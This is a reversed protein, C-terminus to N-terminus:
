LTFIVNAEIWNNDLFKEDKVPGVEVRLLAVEGYASPNLGEVTVNVEEKPKLEPITVTVKQPQTSDPSLLTVTVPVDKEAMNGQNEVAVVFALQDSSQLNFTGGSTIKKADPMVTVTGVAVGHVAQLNGTSKLQALIEQARSKSAIDPDTLFQTAPVAIGTLNKAKLIDTAKPIFVERYLFDSNTLYYLARSIQESSVETDQVELANMLSPKLDALGTHRFTMVLVFFQHVSQKVFENPANLAKAQLELKESTAVFRDLGTQIASRTTDGPNTLLKVLEGGTSDSQKIIDAVATMYRQYDAAEGSNMASRAAFVIVVVVIVIVALIVLLRLLPKPLVRKQRRKREETALESPTDDKKLDTMRLPLM